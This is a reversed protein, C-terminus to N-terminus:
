AVGWAGAARDPVWAAARAARWACPRSVSPSLSRGVSPKLPAAPLDGQDYRTIARWPAPLFRWSGAAGAADAALGQQAPPRILSLRLHAHASASPCKLSCKKAGGASQSVGRVSRAPHTRYVASIHYCATRDGASTRISQRSAMRLGHDSRRM